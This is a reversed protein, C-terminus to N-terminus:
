EKKQAYRVQLIEAIISVAIEAPNKGGLKLGIPAYVKNLLEEKFGKSRLNDFVTKVKERSGIMGFYAAESDLVKELAEQDYQHGRTVIVIFTNASIEYEALTQEINNVILRDAEPFREKNAFDERDDVVVVQFGLMKGLQSLYQSIHGAGAILLEPASFLPEIFVSVEGGCVMGLGAADDAKLRYEFFNPKRSLIAQRAEEIVQAELKGGGISGQITGDAYVLMKAGVRVPTSGAARIVTALAAPKNDKLCRVAEELLTRSEM